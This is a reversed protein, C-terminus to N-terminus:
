LGSREKLVKDVYSKNSKIARGANYASIAKLEDGNYRNLQYKLYIAAYLMSIEPVKMDEETLDAGEIRSRFKMWNATALKIQMPGYSASGGDDMNHVNKCNSEVRCVAHMLNTDLQVSSSIILLTVLIVKLELTNVM